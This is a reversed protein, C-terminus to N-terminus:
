RGKARLKLVREAPLGGQPTFVLRLKLRLRGSKALKRVKKAVALPLKITGPGGFASRPRVAFRKKATQAASRRVKFASGAVSATGSAAVKVLLKMGKRRTKFSNTAAFIKAEAILVGSCRGGYAGGAVLVRGDPLPASAQGASGGGLRCQINLSGIGSSSLPGPGPPFVGSDGGGGWFGGALLVRGDPLPAATARIVSQPLEPGPDFQDPGPVFLETTSRSDGSSAGYGGIVLVRGDPLASAAAAVRPLSMSGVPSFDNAQPDYVEASSLSTGANTGGAVVVRGDPLPAAIPWGRPTNLEPGQTSIGTRPDLIETSGLASPFDFGGVILIRGDRLPAAAAYARPVNLSPGPGFANTAPDFIETSASPQSQFPAAVLGGGILVRGDPLSVGVPGDRGIGLSGTPAFSGSGTAQASVVPTTLSLATLVMCALLIRRIL